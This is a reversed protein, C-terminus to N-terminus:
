TPKSSLRRRRCLQIRIHRGAQMKACLRHPASDGYRSESTPRRQAHHRTRVLKEELTRAIRQGAGASPFRSGGRPPAPLRALELLRFRLGAM